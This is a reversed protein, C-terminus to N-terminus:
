SPRGSLERYLGPNTNFLDNRQAPNMAAFQDATVHQGNSAQPAEGLKADIDAAQRQAYVLALSRELSRGSVAQQIALEAVPYRTQAHLRLRAATGPGKDDGLARYTAIDLQQRITDSDLEVDSGTATARLYAPLEAALAALAHRDRNGAADDLIQSWHAGADLQPKIRSWARQERTEALLQATTDGQPADLEAAAALLTERADTAQSMLARGTQEISDRQQQILKTKYDPAYVESAKISEIEQEAKALAAAATEAAETLTAWAAQRERTTKPM